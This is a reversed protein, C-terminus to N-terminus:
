TPDPHRENRLVHTGDALLAARRLRLVPRPATALTYMRPANIPTPILAAQSPLRTIQASTGSEGSATQM